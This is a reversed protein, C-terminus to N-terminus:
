RYNLPVRNVSEKSGTSSGGYISGGVSIDTYWQFARGTPQSLMITRGIMM